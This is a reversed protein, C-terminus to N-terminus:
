RRPAIGILTRRVAPVAGIAAGCISLLGGAVGAAVVGRARANLVIRNANGNPRLADREAATKIQRESCHSLQCAPRLEVQALPKCTRALGNGATSSWLSKSQQLLREIEAVLAAPECPKVIISDFGSARAEELQTLHSYGTAAILPIARTDSSLRLRLAAEFGTIGPLELDLVIIDPKYDHAKTVADLGDDSEIVEYGM